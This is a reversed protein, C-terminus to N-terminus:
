VSIVYHEALTKLKPKSGFGSKKRSLGEVIFKESLHFSM